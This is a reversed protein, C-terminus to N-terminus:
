SGVCRGTMPDPCIVSHFRCTCAVLFGLEKAHRRAEDPFHFNSLHRDIGLGDIHQTWSSGSLALRQERARAIFWRRLCTQRVIVLEKMVREQQAKEDKFM